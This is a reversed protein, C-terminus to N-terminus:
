RHLCSPSWLRDNESRTRARIRCRWRRDRVDNSSLEHRSFSEYCSKYFSEHAEIAAPKHDLGAHRRTRLSSVGPEFGPLDM